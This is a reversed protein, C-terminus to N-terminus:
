TGEQASRGNSTVALWTSGDPHRGDRLWGREVGVDALARIHDAAVSLEAALEAFTMATPGGRRHLARILPLVDSPLVDTM